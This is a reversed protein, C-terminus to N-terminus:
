LRLSDLVIETIAERDFHLRAHSRSARAMGPLLDPRHLIQVMAAALAEPNRPPVILGNVGEAVADRCGRSAAAIIPRGIALASLLGTTVGGSRSPAVFVHCREVYPRLDQRPGIYRVADRYHRLAKLPFASRRAPVGGVLVCRTNPAKARLLRAAECYDGVGNVEDLEAAMLFTVGKELPPLEMADQSHIDAGPGNVSVAATGKDLLGLSRFLKEDDSCHFVVTENNRLAYRYLSLFVKRRPWDLWRRGGQIDALEPRLGSIISATRPAGALAAAMPALPGAQTSLSVVLDPAHIDLLGKFRRAAQRLALPSFRLAPVDLPHPDAGLRKLVKFSRQDFKPACCVVGHGRLAMSQILGESAALSAISPAFLLVRSTRAGTTM